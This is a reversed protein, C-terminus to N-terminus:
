CILNLSYGREEYNTSRTHNNLERVFTFIITSMLTTMYTREIINNVITDQFIITNQFPFFIIVTYSRVKYEDLM